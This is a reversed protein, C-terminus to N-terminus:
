ATKKMFPRRHFAYFDLNLKVPPYCSLMTKALHECFRVNTEAPLTCGHLLLVPSVLREQSDMREEWFSIHRETIARGKAKASMVAAACAMSVHRSARIFMSLVICAFSYQFRSLLFSPLVSVTRGCVPCLYRAIVVRYSITVALANREYFGHRRLRGPYGCGDQPCGCVEPFVNAKGLRYYEHISQGFAHAIVVSM